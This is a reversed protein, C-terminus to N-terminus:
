CCSSDKSAPDTKGTDSRDKAAAGRDEGVVENDSGLITLGMRSRSLTGPDGEAGFGAQARQLANKDTFASEPLNAVVTYILYEIALDVNSGTKASTEFWGIFGHEEVTREIMEVTVGRPVLDSKNALLVCPVDGYRKLLDQKWRTADNFSDPRNIDFVIIAAHAGRYYVPTMAGYREQGAIDWLNVILNIPGAEFRERIGREYVCAPIPDRPAAAVIANPAAVPAAAADAAAAADGGAATSTRPPSIMNGTPSNGPSDAAGPSPSATAEDASDSDAPEKLQPLTVHKSFFDVGITFRYTSDFRRNVYRQIISSKGTGSKGIVLIKLAINTNLDANAQSM